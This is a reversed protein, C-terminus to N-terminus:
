KKRRPKYDPKITELVHDIMYITKGDISKLLSWWPHFGSNDYLYKKIIVFTKEDKYKNYWVDCDTRWYIGAKNKADLVISVKEGVWFKPYMNKCDNLILKINENNDNDGLLKM